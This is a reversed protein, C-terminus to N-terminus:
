LESESVEMEIGSELTIIFTSGQKQYDFSEGDFMDSLYLEIKRKINESENSDNSETVVDEEVPPTVDDFIEDDFNGSAAEIVSEEYVVEENDFADFMGDESDGIIENTVEEEGTEETEETEEFEDIELIGEEEILEEEEVSEDETLDIAFKVREPAVEVINDEDEFEDSTFVQTDFESLNDESEIIEDIVEDEILEEEFLEDLDDTESSNNVEEIYDELLEEEELIEESETTDFVVEEEIDENISYEGEVMEIQEDTLEVLVKESSNVVNSAKTLKGTVYENMILTNIFTQQLLWNKPHSTKIINLLVNYKYWVTDMPSASVFTPKNLETRLSSLDESGIMNYKFFLKSLFFMFQDETMESQIMLKKMTILEKKYEGIKSMQEDIIDSAEVDAKGTHKRIWNNMYEPIFAADNEHNYGGVACQFKTSKDYSNVWSFTLTVDSDKIVYTGRAVTGNHNMMYSENVLSLGLNTFEKKCKDIIWGHTIPTYTATKAPLAVAKLEKETIFNTSKSM